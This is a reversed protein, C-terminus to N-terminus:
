SQVDFRWLVRWWIGEGYGKQMSTEMNGQITREDLGQHKVTVPNNWQNEATLEDMRRM